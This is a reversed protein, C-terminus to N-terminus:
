CQERTRALRKHVYERERETIAIVLSLKNSQELLYVYVRESGEEGRGM